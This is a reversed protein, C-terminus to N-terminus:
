STAGTAREEASDAMCRLGVVLRRVTARDFSVTWSTQDQDFAAVWGAAERLADVRSSTPRELLDLNSAVHEALQQAVQRRRDDPIEPVNCLEALIMAWLQDTVTVSPKAETM